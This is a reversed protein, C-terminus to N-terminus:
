MHSMSNSALFMLLLYTGIYFSLIFKRVTVLFGTNWDDFTLGGQYDQESTMIAIQTLEKEQDVFYQPVSWISESSPLPVGMESSRIWSTVNMRSSMFCEFLYCIWWIRRKIEKHIYVPLEILEPILDDSDQDLNMDIAM